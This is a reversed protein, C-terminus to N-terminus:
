PVCQRVEWSIDTSTALANAHGSVQQEGRGSLLHHKPVVAPMGPIHPIQRDLLERVPVWAMGTRRAVQLLAALERLRAGLVRPQACSALHHLLLGQPVEGPCHRGEEVRLVWGPPRRPALDASVLPKPGDPDLGAVHAAQRAVHALHPHWLGPPHPEAPGAGRRLARLGVPAGAVPRAAPVNGGGHDRLRNRCRTVAFRHADITPYGDTRRQGCSFHQVGEAQRRPLPPAHPPQLPLKGAGPAARFAAPPYPQSDRPQAGALCVSAFVPSLLGARVECAPEVYDPDLIELDLVHCARGLPRGGIWAPADAGLSAQVALDQPGPPAQQDAAQFVLRGATDLLDVGRKRALAARRAPLHVRLRALALGDEPAGGATEGAVSVHVRGPVDRSPV